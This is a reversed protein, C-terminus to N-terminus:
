KNIEDREKNGEIKGQNKREKKNEQIEESKNQCDTGL